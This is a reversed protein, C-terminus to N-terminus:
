LIWGTVEQLLEKLFFFTNDLVIYKPLHINLDKLAALSPSLSLKKQRKASSMTKKRSLFAIICESLLCKAAVTMLTLDESLEM